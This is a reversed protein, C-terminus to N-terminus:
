DYLFSFSLSSLNCYANRVGLFHARFEAGMQIKKESTLQFDLDVSVIDAGMANVVVRKM